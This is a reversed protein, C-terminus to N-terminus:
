NLTTCVGGLACSQTLDSKAAEENGLARHTLARDYYLRRSDPKLLIAQNFDLLAEPYKKLHYYAKARTGYVLEDGPYTSISRTLDAIAEDYRKLQFLKNGRNIYIREVGPMNPKDHVLKEADDWLLLTNSFTHLRNLSLPVLLIALLSLLIFARKPSLKTCLVPLAVLLGPMWLYSRYLVFPEQARVTSLETLFLLWPFLLAFGLLGMKNRKLLLWIALFPYALFAAFGFTQPWSLYSLAFPERMDVSMWAPNPLLWLLLYKFFLSSQTIASLLLTNPLETLGQKQASLNLIALAHPEYAEGVVTRTHLLVSAAILACLIYYPALYKFLTISPKRLLFTLALAVSPAAISHEKSYAAAFYFLAAVPMWYWNGRTLGQLYSLLMLLSFLTAMLISRQVLYTVGYVAIPHLAFILAAFFAFWTLAENSSENSNLTARFLHQLLFFLAAANAAHILVNGLRLWFVDFGVWNTLQILTTYPLWRLGISFFSHGYKTINEASAFFAFDDFVFPYHLSQAYLAIVAILLSTIILALKRYDSPTKM